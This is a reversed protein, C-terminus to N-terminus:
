SGFKYNNCKNCPKIGQIIAEKITIATPEKMNGCKIVSHFKNGYKTKYVIKNENYEEDKEPICNFKKSNINSKLNNYKKSNYLTNFSAPSDNKEKNKNEFNILLNNCSSYFSSSMNNNNVIGSINQLNNKNNYNLDNIISNQSDSRNGSYYRQICFDEVKEEIKDDEKRIKWILIAGEPIKNFLSKKLKTINKCLIKNELENENIKELHIPKRENKYNVLFISDKYCIIKENNNLINILNINKDENENSNDINNSINSNNINFEEPKKIGNNNILKINKYIVKTKEFFSITGMFKELFENNYLKLNNILINYNMLSNYYSVQNNYNNLILKHIKVESDLNKIINDIWETMEKEWTKLKKILEKNIEVKEKFKSEFNQIKEKNPILNKLEEILHNRHDIQNEICYKCLNKNCTKCYHSLNTNHVNCKNSDQEILIFNGGTFKKSNNNLICKQCIDYKIDKKTFRYFTENIEQLCEKCINKEKVTIYKETYFKEFPIETEKHNKPCTYSVTFQSANFNLIIPESCTRCTFIGTSINKQHEIENHSQNLNKPETSSYPNNLFCSM